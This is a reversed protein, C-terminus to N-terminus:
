QRNLNQPHCLVISVSQIYDILITSVGNWNQRQGGSLIINVICIVIIEVHLHSWLCDVPPIYVILM